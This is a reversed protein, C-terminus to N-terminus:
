SLEAEAHLGRALHPADADLIKIHGAAHGELAELDPASEFRGRGSARVWVLRRGEARPLTKPGEGSAPVALALLTRGELLAGPGSLTKSENAAGIRLACRRETRLTREFITAAIQVAREFSRGPRAELDLVIELAPAAARQLERLVLHERTASRRWHVRRMPDGPRWDRLGAIEDDGAQARGQLAHHRARPAQLEFQALRGTRPLGLLDVDLTFRQIRRVLGLPFASSAVVTLKTQRGRQALRAGVHVTATEDPALWDLRGSAPHAGN